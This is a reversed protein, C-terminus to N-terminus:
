QYHPHKEPVLRTKGHQGRRPRPHIYKSEGFFGVHRHSLAIRVVFVSFHGYGKLSHAVESSLMRAHFQFIASELFINKVQNSGSIKRYSLGSFYGVIKYATLRHSFGTEPVPALDPWSIHTIHGGNLIRDASAWFVTMLGLHQWTHQGLTTM